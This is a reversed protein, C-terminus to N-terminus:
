ISSSGALSLVLCLVIRFSKISLDLKRVGAESEFYFSGVCLVGGGAPRLVVSDCIDCTRRGATTLRPVTDTEVSTKM